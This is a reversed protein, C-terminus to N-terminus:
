AGLTLQAMKPEPLM